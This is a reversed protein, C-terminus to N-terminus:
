AASRTLCHISVRVTLSTLFILGTRLWSIWWPKRSLFFPATFSRDVGRNQVKRPPKRRQLSSQEPPPLKPPLSFRGAGLGERGGEAQGTDRREEEASEM